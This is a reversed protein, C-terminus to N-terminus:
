GEMVPFFYAWGSFHNKMAVSLLFMLCEIEAWFTHTVTEEM